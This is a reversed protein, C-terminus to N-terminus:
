LTLQGLSQEKCNGSQLSVIVSISCPKSVQQQSKFNFIFFYYNRHLCLNKKVESIKTQM